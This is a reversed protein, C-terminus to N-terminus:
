ASWGTGAGLRSVRRRRNGLMAGARENCARCAPRLECCGSGSVHRHEALPPVHDPVEAPRGCGYWCRHGGAGIVHRAARYAPEAYPRSM